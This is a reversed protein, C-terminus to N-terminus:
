FGTYRLDRRDMSGELLEVTSACEPGSLPPPFSQGFPPRPRQEDPGLRGIASAGQTAGGWAATCGMTGAWADGTGRM